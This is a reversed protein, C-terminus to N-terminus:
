SEILARAADRDPAAPGIYEFVACPRGGLRGDLGSTASNPPSFNGPKKKLLWLPSRDHSRVYVPHAPYNCLRYGLAKYEAGLANILTFALGLGQYDPLTVNRAIGKIDRVKPHPRHLIGAFSAPSGDAFLVFCNAGRNLEATLYHFPAFLKWASYDVRCIEVNIEPRRQVSRWRFTMTAPELIWDPQLWEIVDYHCTVAVFRRKNKRIFKAVANSGIHAVQRDVVSTFEDVVIPNADSLLHRALEVRFREGTSLVSFPKMWSPITNFGVAGCATTIQEMTSKQDFDDIVSKAKWKQATPDGFLKRAVTSKGAGSPGVILGVNWEKEDLPIEANWERTLKNQAPVDFIGELQMVRPTREIETSVIVDLRPM